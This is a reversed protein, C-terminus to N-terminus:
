GHPIAPRYSISSNDDDDEEEDEEEEEKEEKEKQLNEEERKVCHIVSPLHGNSKTVSITHVQVLLVIESSKM